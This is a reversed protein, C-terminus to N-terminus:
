GLHFSLLNNYPCVLMSNYLSCYQWCLNEMPIILMGGCDDTKPPLNECVPLNEAGLFLAAQNWESACVDDRIFICDERKSTHLNNGSDCSRFASLCLFPVMADICEQSPNLFNLGDLLGKVDAEGMQQDIISPINLAPPPSTVDSFCMQLSTLVERCVEGSYIQVTSCISSDTTNVPNQPPPYSNTCM